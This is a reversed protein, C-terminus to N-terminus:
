KSEKNPLWGTVNVGSQCECSGSEAWGSWMGKHKPCPVARLEEGLYLLRSLLNSKYIATFVIGVSENLGKLDEDGRDVADGIAEQWTTLGKCYQDIPMVPCHYFDSLEKLMAEAQEQNLPM